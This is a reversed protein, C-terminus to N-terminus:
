SVQDAQGDLLSILKIAHQGSADVFYVSINNMIIM